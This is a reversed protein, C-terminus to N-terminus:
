GGLERIRLKLQEVERRHYWAAVETRTKAGIKVRINKMHKEITRESTGLQLAIDLNQKGAAVHVVIEEERATLIPEAAQDKEFPYQFPKRAAPEGPPPITSVAPPPPVPGAADGPGPRRPKKRPM